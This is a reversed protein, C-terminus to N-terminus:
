RYFPELVKGQSALKVYAIDNTNIATDYNGDFVRNLFLNKIREPVNTAVITGGQSAIKVYAIDNTNVAGDMNTDSMKPIVIIKRVCEVTENAVSDYFSYKLDYIDPSICGM